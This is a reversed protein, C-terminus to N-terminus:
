NISILWITLAVFASSLTALLNVQHNNLFGKQQLTAGLISDAINGLFGAVAIIIMVYLDHSSLLTASAILLSGILGFGLGALSVIGDPGRESNKFTIINFYRRGYLNGLESSFTDSCAGAFSSMIMITLLEQYEPFIIALVSLLLAVGGNALVNNVGRKGGKDQEVRHSIKFDKGWFSVASGFAFFLFLALLSETGGGIWVTFAMAMGALTGIGDIRKM